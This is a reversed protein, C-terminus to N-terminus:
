ARGEAPSPIPSQTMRRVLAQVLARSKAGLAKLAKKGRGKRRNKWWLYTAYAALLLYLAAFRPSRELVELLFLLWFGVAAFGHGLGRSDGTLLCLAGVLILALAGAGWALTITMTM